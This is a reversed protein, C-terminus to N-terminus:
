LVVLDGITVPIMQELDKLALAVSVGRQGGSFIIKHFLTAAEDIFTPFPKKMGLPSCGGHQYGTLPLLEKERIMEIKKEGALHAAKKLDLSQNIPIMFVYYYGSKAQTVLTKFVQDEKDKLTTGAHKIYESHYVEYSIDAQDLLRMVNTKQEKVEDCGNNRLPNM